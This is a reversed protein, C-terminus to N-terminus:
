ESVGLDLSTRLQAVATSAEALERVMLDCGDRTPRASLERLQGALREGMDSLSAPLYLQRLLRLDATM